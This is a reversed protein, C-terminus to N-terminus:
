LVTTVFPIKVFLIHLRYANRGISPFVLASSASLGCGTHRIRFVFCLLLVAAIGGGLNNRNQARLYRSTLLSTTGLSGRFSAYRSSGICLRKAPHYALFPIAYSRAPAHLPPVSSVRSSTVIYLFIQYYRYCITYMVHLCLM